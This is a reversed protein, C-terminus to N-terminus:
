RIDREIRLGLPARIPAVAFFRGATIAPDVFVGRLNTEPGFMFLVPGNVDWSALVAGTALSIDQTNLLQKTEEDAVVVHIGGHGEFRLRIRAPMEPTACRCVFPVDYPGPMSAWVAGRTGFTVSDYPTSPEIGVFTAVTLALVLRVM